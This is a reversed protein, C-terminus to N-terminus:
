SQRNIRISQARARLQAAEQPRRTRQLLSAYDELLDATWPHNAPLVQERIALARKYLPEAEQYHGQAHYLYALSYLTTAKEPHNPPLAQEKIMLAQKFLSEAEEYCGQGQYLNGLNNLSIGTNPHNAPLAQEKIMLARKYLPEAEEYRGQDYYLNALNDLTTATGPHNAPLAQEGIMLSRKYLPEAEEYRGQDRYLNALNNLTASTSPHDPGPVQERIMLARKFLPEAETNRAHENLYSAARHLLSAAQSFQLAYQNILDVCVFAQPLYRKCRDWNEFEANPFAANVMRITREAWKKQARRDIRDKLVVQVLRHIALSGTDSFRRILSFSRLVNMAENFEFDNELLPKLVPGLESAGEKLLDEPIGDPDLFACLRLLDAAAPDRQEVQEFALAWTSAVTRPYGSSVRPKWKFLDARHQQYLKLYHALGCQTQEIYAGAQDIALPLGGMEKVIREATAREEQNSQQLPINSTLAGARRLLLETGEQLDLQEVEVTRALSSVSPDRTTLLIHGKKGTPLFDPIPELDDANDMILLWNDHSTLWQKVAIVIRNQDQDDKQPLSLETAITTYDSILTDRAAARVWLIAQYEYQYRYAYEVATQTKGIGGLGHIALTQTLAVTKSGTLQEHLTKLLMERGTFFQNRRYPVMWVLPWNGPFTPSPSTSRQSSTNGPFDPATSPIARARNIGALLTNQAALSNLGVLDIYVIPALLGTLTCLRVRVPLLKGDKGTPDQKFAAAWEPQTYLAELYDPSLVAITRRAIKTARDMELIFNSGPRFDWAQLITSHGETELCWAIWEAWGRDAKNYSIFFDRTAEGAM